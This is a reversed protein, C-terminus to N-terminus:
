YGTSSTSLSTSIIGHRGSKSHIFLEKSSLGNYYSNEIYCNPLLTVVGDSMPIQIINDNNGKSGSNVINILNNDLNKIINKYRVYSKVNM